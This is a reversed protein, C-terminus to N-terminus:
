DLEMRKAYVGSTHPSTWSDTMPSDRLKDMDKAMKKRKQIHPKLGKNFNCTSWTAIGITVILMLVTIVAFLTLGKRAALYDAVRSPNNMDYMRVLKFLFYALAAFYLTITVFMGVYSERRTWVAALFLVVLTIPLAAITLAFEADTTNTVAVLFQVSFSLFFFFDFKLLAVYIQSDM